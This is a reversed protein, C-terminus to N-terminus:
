AECAGRSLAGKPIRKARFKPPDLPDQPMEVMRIIRNSAGSNHGEGQQAPTYRIFQAEERKAIQQKPLAQKIKGAVIKELAQRTEETTRRIEDDSPRELTPDDEDIDQGIANALKNHVV